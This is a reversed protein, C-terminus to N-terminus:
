RGLCVQLCRGVPESSRAAFCTAALGGRAGPGLVRLNSDQEAMSSGIRARFLGAVAM